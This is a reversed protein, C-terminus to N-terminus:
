VLSEVVQELQMGRSAKVLVTSNSNVWRDLHALAEKVTESHYVTRVGSKKAESAIWRAQPGIAVLTDIGVRGAYRGVQEHGEQSYDGLEYMDGLVAVRKGAEAIHSLVDLSANMSLPSANYCDDIIKMGRHGPVIRLRGSLEELGALGITIDNMSVGLLRGAAVAALANSINHLGFTPLSMRSSEGMADVTFEMGDATWRVDRARVDSDASFGYGIVEARSKSGLSRLWVDDANLIAHGDEPLAQVLEGKARAIGEQSGLLEIHSQGINTIIGINPRAIRCLDSIQGFGRMGMELVISRHAPTRQLITLPLGLENNRNAETYLCDGLSGLVAAVMQKTTTKGNSGTIGVIPGEFATREHMAMQQVATLPDHVHLIAGRDTKVPKSVIAVSAGRDFADNIFDHGDVRQGEFAVFADGPRVQRNDTAVGTVKTDLNGVALTASLLHSLQNM